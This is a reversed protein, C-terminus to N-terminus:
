QAPTILSVGYSHANAGDTNVVQVIIVDNTLSLPINLFNTPAQPFMIHYLTNGLEDEAIVEVTVVGLTNGPLFTLFADGSVIAPLRWQDEAGGALVTNEIGAQQSPLPYAIRDSAGSLLTAWTNATLSGASTVNLSLSVYPARLPTRMVLAAGVRFRFVDSEASMTGAADIWHNVTLKGAGASPQIVVGLSSFSSVPLVNGNHVGPTLTQNAATFLNSAIANPFQQWDPFDTMTKTYIEGM